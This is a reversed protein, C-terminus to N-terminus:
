AQQSLHILLEQLLCVNEDTALTPRRRNHDEQIGKGSLTYVQLEELEPNTECNADSVPTEQGHDSVHGSTPLLCLQRTHWPVFAFPLGKVTSTSVFSCSWIRFHLVATGGAHPSLPLDSMCSPPMSRLSARSPLWLKCCAMM